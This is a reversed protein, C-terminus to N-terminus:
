DLDGRLSVHALGVILKWIFVVIAVILAVGIFASACIIVPPYEAFIRHM